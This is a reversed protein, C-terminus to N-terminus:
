RLGKTRSIKAIKQTALEMNTYGSLSTAAKRDRKVIHATCALAVRRLFHANNQLSKYIKLSLCFHLM